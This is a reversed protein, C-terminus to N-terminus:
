EDRKTTEKSSQNELCLTCFADWDMCVIKGKWQHEDTLTNQMRFFGERNTWEVGAVPCKVM